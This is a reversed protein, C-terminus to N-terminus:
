HVFDLSHLKLKYELRLMLFSTKLAYNIIIHSLLALDALSDSLSMQLVNNHGIIRNTKQAFVCDSWPKAKLRRLLCVTQDPSQKLDESCVCLRILAKSEAFGQDSETNAWFVRKEGWGPAELSYEGCINDHLFLFFVTYGWHSSGPHSM